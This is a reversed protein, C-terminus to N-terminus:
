IVSGVSSFIGSVNGGFTTVAAIIAAAILAALLAYEIASIGEEARIFKMLNLACVAM